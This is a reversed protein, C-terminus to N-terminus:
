RPRRSPCSPLPEGTGSGLGQGFHTKWVGYDALTYTTGLGNRWVTYDAANVINDHNFDGSGTFLRAVDQFENGAGQELDAYTTGVIYADGSEGISVDISDDHETTGFQYSWELNGAEGFRAVYPMVTGRM